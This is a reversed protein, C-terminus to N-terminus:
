EGPHVDPDSDDPDGCETSWGDGDEDGTGTGVLDIIRDAGSSDLNTPDVKITGTCRDAVEPAFVISFAIETEPELVHDGPEADGVFAFADDGSISPGVEVLLDSRGANAVVFELPESECGAGLDEFSLVPNVIELIPPQSNSTTVNSSCASLNWAILLLLATSPLYTTM